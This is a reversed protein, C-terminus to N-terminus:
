FDYRFINEFFKRINDFSMSLTSIREPSNEQSLIEGSLQIEKHLAYNLYPFLTALELSLNKYTEQSISGNRNASEIREDIDHYKQLLDNKMKQQKM